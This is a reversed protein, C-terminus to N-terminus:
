QALWVTALDQNVYHSPTIKWGKLKASHPVIRQWWITPFAYAQEQIVRNEFEWVLQKRREPDTTASQQEYLEDLRPDEYAGYNTPSKSRSVFKALQLDPEDMFDCNFDVGVDFNGNRFNNTYAASEQVSQTVNLGIQRWQDILWVGIPEYPMQVDRNMLTFSFGPAVGAEALLRQAQERSARIDPRYGELKELEAKPRAFPAGPRMLAGVEKVFAIKSLTEASGWRDLALNLARRVRADNFPAKKTNITVYLACIWPSEQVVIENGLARVLDDRQQPTFSRFEILARGGRVAAVQAAADRIFTARFGDLYPQGPIFYDNFKRGVWHSGPVYEVFVFPGTGMINKEPYRPDKEILDAKYIFNWPSAFNALMAASPRKLRFVITFPDPTEIRDIVQYSARRASVVGEPPNIIREYTAKVDRSTLQSGDHFKVNNRLKFTYTLGDPSITWSEAVDGVINPYNFPDFKLLTSYHPATPHLMAFTTERHGDFSPPEASVIFNLEGGPRPQEAPKAAATPTAAPKAAPQTAAPATTPTAPAPTPQAAPAPTPKPAPTATPAPAAPACASLVLLVSLGLLAARRVLIPQSRQGHGAM